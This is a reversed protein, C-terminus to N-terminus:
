SRRALRAISARVVGLRLIFSLLAVGAAAGLTDALWDSLDCSRPPVFAQHWEDSVGYLSALLVALAAAKAPGLGASRAAALLLAGLAAYAVAHLAKDWVLHTLDPLPDSQSSLYFLLAM